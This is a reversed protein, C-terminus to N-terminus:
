QQLVRRILQMARDYDTLFDYIGDESLIGRKVFAPIEGAADAEFDKRWTDSEYYRILERIAPLQEEFRALAPLLEAVTESAGDLIREMEGIRRIREACYIVDEAM